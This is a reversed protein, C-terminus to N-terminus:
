GKMVLAKRFEGLAEAYKGDNYFEIGLDCLMDLIQTYAYVPEFTVFLILFSLIIAIIKKM